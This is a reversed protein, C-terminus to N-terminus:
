GRDLCRSWLFRDGGRGLSYRDLVGSRFWYLSCRDLFWSWLRHLHCWGLRCWLWHLSSWLLVVLAIISLRLLAVRLLLVVLAVVLLGRLSGWLLVVLSIVSLRLLAVRLLLVVLAVVLLGRLSVWLLVVLSIVSLRLLAVRLLLVILDVVCFRLLAIWLLVVLIGIIILGVVGRERLLLRFFILIDLNQVAQVYRDWNFAFGIFDFYGPRIIPIYVRTVKADVAVPVADLNLIRSIGRDKSKAATVNAAFQIAAAALVQIEATEIYVELETETKGGECVVENKGDVGEHSEIELFDRCVDIVIGLVLIFVFLPGIIFVIVIIVVVIVVITAIIEAIDCVVKIADFSDIELM